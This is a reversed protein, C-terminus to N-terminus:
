LKFQGSIKIVFKQADPSDRYTIRHFGGIRIFKMINEIGYGLEVYPLTPNLFGISPIANGDPDETAMIARNEDRISGYLINASGFVRLKLKQIYPIRNTLMGQFFHEYHLSAYKDSVFEFYNMTSYAGASYFLSENGIHNELLLYPITGFIYGGRLKLRGEGLGGYRLKQLFELKLKHFSVDSKLLDHFGYTYDLILMPSRRTGLSVRENGKQIFTEDRAWKTTLQVSPSSISSKVGDEPNGPNRYYYFAYQPDYYDYKMSVFQTLGKVLESQIGISNKSIYYPRYFTQWRTAAYFIYNNEVLDEPRIGAQQVEYASRFTLQSWPYRKLIYNGTFGYKWKADKTGYGVYPNIVIKHSFYENTKAGLRISNGEFSNYAYAFLYPGFDLKGRRWYGTSLFKILNVRAKVSPIEVLRAITTYTDSLEGTRDPPRTAEWYENKFNSYDESVVVKNTYFRDEKLDGIKWDSTTNLVSVRVDPINRAFNSVIVMAETRSTLWPGSDTRNLEQVISIQEIFNLNISEGVSVAIKKLAFDDTTLWIRGQFAPEAESNPFVELEFCQDDGIFVTDLIQYDYYNKWGDAIPSVFEKELFRIWNQYFNFDQYTSGLLQSVTSGDEVAVGSIRSKEVEEHRAFPDNKAYYRSVSESLFIPLVANGKDNTDIATTDVGAWIDRVIRQKRMKDPINEIDFQIRTYARCDYATLIRRDHYKKNAVANRIIEWAPNEGSMVVVTELEVTKPRLRFEREQVKGILLPYSQPYYGVSSVLISDSGQRINLVFKGHSDSTTGENTGKLYINAYPIPEGNSKDLVTGAIHIDNQALVRFTDLGGFFTIFLITIYIRELFAGSKVNFQNQTSRTNFLSIM